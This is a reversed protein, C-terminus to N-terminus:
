MSIIRKAFAEKEDEFTHQYIRNLMDPTSHGMLEMIYRQPVGTLLARSAFYHRLKHFSFFNEGSKRMFHSWANTIDTQTMGAAFDEAPGDGVMKIIEDPCPLTRYGSFSKPPKVVQGDSGRVMARSITVTKKQKDFDKYKLGAIESARLGMRSALLFPLEIRKGKVKEALRDVTKKDPIYVKDKKRQPLAVSYAFNPRFMKLVASIFANYNRVTKPAHSAAEVNLAAQIDRATLDDISKDMLESLSHGIMSKYLRLTSPSLVASKITVYQEASQRFTMTNRTPRNRKLAAAQYEAERKTSATVSEYRRKGNETGLYVLVNWNGSPLKKAKM